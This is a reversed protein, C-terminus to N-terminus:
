KLRNERIFREAELRLDPALELARNVADLAAKKDGLAAYTAALKIYWNPSDPEQEQLRQYLTIIRDYKKEEAYIDIVYLINATTKLGPDLEWAKELSELGAQRQGAAIKALGLFWWSQGIEPDLKVATENAAIAKEFDRTLLYLRGLIFHIEQRQPSIQRAKILIAEAKSFYKYDLHEAIILYTQGAWFAYAFNDRYQQYLNELRDKILTAASELDEKSRILNARDLKQLDAAALTATEAPWPEPAQLAKVTFISWDNFDQREFAASNSKQLYFSAKLPLFNYKYLSFFLPAILVIVAYSLAKSKQDDRPAASLDGAPASHSKENLSFHGAGISSALAAILFFLLLSNSTEFLFLNQVFYGVLGAALIQKTFGHRGFPSLLIRLLNFYLWLYSALGVLGSTVLIELPWNHPKDWVTEAFSYRLFRPNYYKNFVVDYNGPGWGLWPKERWGKLAIQWAMLRTQATAPLSSIQFKFISSQSLLFIAFALLILLLATKRKTMEFATLSGRWRELWGAPSKEASDVGYRRSADSVLVRFSRYAVLLVFFIVGAALGLLAGRTGTRYLTFLELFGLAVLPIKYKTNQIQCASYFALTAALVLYSALFAANGFIGSLRATQHDLIFSFNLWPQFLATLTVLLSVVNTILLVSRWTTMGLALSPDGATSPPSKEANGRFSRLLLFYWAGFHLWTFVGQARSQNAWFSNLFNAGTLSTLILIALFLLVSWDLANLQKSQDDRVFHSIGPTKSPIERPAQGSRLRTARFLRYIVLILYLVVLAEVLMQFLITKGFNAPFRTWGTFGLPLLLSLYLGWRIIKALIGRLKM